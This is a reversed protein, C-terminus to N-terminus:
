NNYFVTLILFFIKLIRKFDHLIEVKLNQKRLETIKCLNLVVAGKFTFTFTPWFELDHVTQSFFEKLEFHKTFTYKRVFGFVKLAAGKLAELDYM